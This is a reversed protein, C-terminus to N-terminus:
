QTTTDNYNQNANLSNQVAVNAEVIKYSIYRISHEGFDLAEKFKYACRDLCSKEAPKLDPAVMDYICKQFCIDQMKEFETWDLTEQSASNVVHTLLKLM